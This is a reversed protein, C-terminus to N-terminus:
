FVMVLVDGLGVSLGTLAMCVESTCEADAITINDLLVFIFSALLNGSFIRIFQWNLSNGYDLPSTM